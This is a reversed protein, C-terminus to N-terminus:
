AVHADSNGSQDRHAHTSRDGDGRVVRGGVRRVTCMCWRRRSSFADPRSSHLYRGGPPIWVSRNLPGEGGPYGHAGSYWMPAVLTENLHIYQHNSAAEEYQPWYLDCRAALPFGAVTAEHGAAILSPMLSMRMNLYSRIVDETASDYSWPQHAAGHFRHITGFACHATWRM